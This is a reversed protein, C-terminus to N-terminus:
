HAALISGEQLVHVYGGVPAFFFFDDYGPFKTQAGKKRKRKRKRKGEREQPEEGGQGRLGSRAKEKKVGELKRV